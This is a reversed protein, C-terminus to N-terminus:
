WNRENSKECLKAFEEMTMKGYFSTHRVTKVIVRNNELAKRVANQATDLSYNGWLKVTTPIINNNEDVYEVECFTQVITRAISNRAM